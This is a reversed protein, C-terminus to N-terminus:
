WAGPILRWKVREAYDLYGPLNQRLFRDELVVRRLILLSYVSALGFAWWSGLAIAMLPVGVIMGAYGPHRIVAYPGTDVVRHGRDNQIRIVVSFFRNETMARFCFLFAALCGAIAAIRLSGPIPASWHFRGSDLPAIIVAAFATVRIWFLAIADIGKTPPQFREAALDPAMTFMAYLVLASVGLAFTWLLPSTWEGSLAMVGGGFVVTFVLWRALRKRTNMTELDTETQPDWRDTNQYGIRADELL